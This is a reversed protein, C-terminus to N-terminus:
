QQENDGSSVGAQAFTAMNNHLSIATQILPLAVAAGSGEGLRMGIDLLPRARLNELALRHGPEASQHSFVLWPLVSANIKVAALAAATSIFGDVVAPVGRQACAIYAGTLAAIEFGGLAALVKLPDNETAKHKTVAAAVVQAKRQVGAPDLGTGPGVLTSIPLDLWIALLASAATTNGIGMEGGIFVDADLVEARGAEMAAFCQAESMAVGQTFDATGPAIARDHLKPHSGVPSVVGMNVVAFDANLSESLVSIAAGGHLFNEIMQGTVVQPFASVGQACVGHDAAFVRVCINDCRPKLSHQFGCFRVAIEELVGLSGPPKTLTLQYARAKEEDDHSVARASELYWRNSNM